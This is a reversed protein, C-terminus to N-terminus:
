RGTEDENEPVMEIEFRGSKVVEIRIHVDNPHGLHRIFGRLDPRRLWSDGDEDCCHPMESVRQFGSAPLHIVLLHANMGAQSRREYAAALFPLGFGEHHYMCALPGHLLLDLRRCNFQIEWEVHTFIKVKEASAAVEGVMHIPAFLQAHFEKVALHSLLRAHQHRLSFGDASLPIEIVIVSAAKPFVTRSKSHRGPAEHRVEHGSLHDLHHLISEFFVRTREIVKVPGHCCILCTLRQMIENLM